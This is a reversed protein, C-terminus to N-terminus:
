DRRVASAVAEVEMAQREEVTPLIEDALAAARRGMELRRDEDKLLDVLMAGLSELKGRPLLVGTDGDRVAERTEGEDLAVVCCGCMMAEETPNAMNTRDSLSIFVDCARYYQALEGRELAGTFQVSAEVGLRAAEALLFSREPGDGVIVVRASPLEKLVEPVCSLLREHHKESDLRGVSLLIPVGTDVGLDRKADGRTAPPRFLEKDVGNRWYRLREGPVGFRAAV